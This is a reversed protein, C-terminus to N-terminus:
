SSGTKDHIVQFLQKVKLLMIMPPHIICVQSNPAYESEKEECVVEIVGLSYSTSDTMVFDIKAMTQSETYLCGTDASLIELTTQVLEALCKKAEAFIGLTPLMRQMGNINFLQFVFDSQFKFIVWM